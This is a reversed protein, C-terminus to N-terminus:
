LVREVLRTASLVGSAHLKAIAQVQQMQEGSLSELYSFFRESPVEGLFSPRKDVAIPHEVKLGCVFRRFLRSHVCLWFTVKAYWTIDYDYVTGYHWSFLKTEWFRRLRSQV